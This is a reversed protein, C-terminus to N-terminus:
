ESIHILSLSLFGRGAAIRKPTRRLPDFEVQIDAQLTKLKDLSAQRAPTLPRVAGAKRHDFDPLRGSEPPTFARSAPVVIFGAAAWFFAAALFGFDMQKRTM